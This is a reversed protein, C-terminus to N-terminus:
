KNLYEELLLSFVVSDEFKGDKLYHQRLQGEQTFGFKRMLNLSPSNNPGVFAEIRHLQMESFGYAIIPTLAETMFGKEKYHDDFLGYGIEARFHKLYWTHYGCWGIIKSSGKESIQFYRFTKDHTSLGLQYKKREFDLEEVTDVSFFAMQEGEKYHLWVYDMVEPTVLTLILRNTTIFEFQM